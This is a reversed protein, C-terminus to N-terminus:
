QSADQFYSASPSHIHIPESRFDHAMHEHIIKAGHSAVFDSLTESALQQVPDFKGSHVAEDVVARSGIKLAHYTHFASAVILIDPPTPFPLGLRTQPLHSIYGFFHKRLMNWLIDCVLYHSFDDPASECGLICPLCVDEHM